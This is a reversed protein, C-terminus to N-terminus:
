YLPINTEAIFGNLLAEIDNAPNELTSECDQPDTAGELDAAMPVIRTGRISGENCSPINLCTISLPAAGSCFLRARNVSLWNIVAEAGSPFDFRGGVQPRAQSAALAPVGNRAATRAAGITGSASVVLESVNPDANIGSIVVQPRIGPSYLNGLAYNVADAPCGNVATAPYGSLTEAGVAELTGCDTNDSAGSQEVDPACVIVENNPNEILAEVIVDIGEANIGDDNTVLIRLLQDSCDPSNCDTISCNNISNYNSSDSDTSCGTLILVFIFALFFFVYNQKCSM